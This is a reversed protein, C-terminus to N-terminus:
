VRGASRRAPGCVHASSRGHRSRNDRLGAARERGRTVGAHVVSLRAVRSRSRGAALAPPLQDQRPSSARAEFHPDSDGGTPGGLESARIWPSTQAPDVRATGIGEGVVRAPSGGRAFWAFFEDKWTESELVLPEYGLPVVYAGGAREVRYVEYPPVSAARSFEPSDDLATKVVEGRAIVDNVNYLRLHEAARAPDLRGCHYPLLPCSPVESIESQIYFVFPSSISSQMYLGELTSAGAFLPLSEFARITGADNHALSHEYAVRPDAPTRSVAENVARFSAWGPTAEFGGYNWAAWDDVDEIHVGAWAVAIISLLIASTAAAWRWSRGVRLGALRRIWKAAPLAALIVITLQAFPLFRVDVVDLRWAVLYFFLSGALLSVLYAVRHDIYAHWGDIPVRRILKPLLALGVAALLALFPWLVPPFLHAFGTIPWVISYATTYDAYALLPLLWFGLLAFALAGLKLLYPLARRGDPHFLVLYAGLASAVLLTYAHSLGIAALLLGNGIWGRGDVVGRYLTGAFLLLLVISFSYTFEGALTSSVNAGWM